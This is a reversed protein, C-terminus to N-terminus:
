VYYIGRLHFKTKDLDTNLLNPRTHHLLYLGHALYVIIWIIWTRYFFLGLAKSYPPPTLSFFYLLFSTNTTLWSYKWYFPIYTSESFFVVLRENKILHYSQQWSTKDFRYFSRNKQVHYFLRGQSITYKCDKKLHLLNFCQELIYM